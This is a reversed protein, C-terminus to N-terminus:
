DPLIESEKMNPYSLTGGLTEVLSGALAYAVKPNIRLTIRDASNKMIAIVINIDEKPGDGETATAIEADVWNVLELEIKV